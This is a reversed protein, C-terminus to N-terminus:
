EERKSLNFEMEGAEEGEPEEATNEYFDFEVSVQLINEKQGIYDYTIGGVTLHREEVVVVMGFADKITDVMQLQQMENTIEQFYTIKLIFGSKAFGRTERKFSKAIIEIFLSPTDYGETVERGYIKLGTKEKLLKNAATKIAAQSLM